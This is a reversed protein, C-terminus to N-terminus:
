RISERLWFLKEDIKNLNDVIMDTNYANVYKKLEQVMNRLQDIKEDTNM